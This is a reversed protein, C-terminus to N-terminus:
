NKGSKGRWKPSPLEDVCQVERGRCARERKCAHRHCSSWANRADMWTRWIDRPLTYPDGDDDEDEDGPM